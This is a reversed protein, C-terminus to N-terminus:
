CALVGLGTVGGFKALKAKLTGAGVAAVAKGCSKGNVRERDNM